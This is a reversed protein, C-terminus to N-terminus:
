RLRAEGVAVRVNATSADPGTARAPTSTGPETPPTKSAPRVAAELWVRTMQLFIERERESRATRAWEFCEDAYARYDDVPLHAKTM